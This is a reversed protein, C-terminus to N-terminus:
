SLAEGKAVIEPRRIVIISVGSIAITGGVLIQWTLPEGLMVIAGLIGFVPALMSFPTVQHVSYKGILHSWLGLGILTTCLAMYLLSGIVPYPPISTFLRAAGEEIVLSGGILLLASYFSFWTLFPMVPTKLQKVQINYVAWCGAGLLVLIFGQLHKTVSPTGVLIVMGTFAIAMGIARRWGLPDKLWWIGLLATFPVHMQVAIVGAGVSLGQWLGTFVLGHYGLGYIVAMQFISKHQVTVRAYVPLLCLAVVSFRLGMLLIPPFYHLGIKAVVFNLGWVLAILIALFIDKIKVTYKL